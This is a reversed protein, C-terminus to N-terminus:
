SISRARTAAPAQSSQPARVDTPERELRLSLCTLGAEAKLFESIDLTAVAFGRSELAARTRPFGEALVVTKGIRLANAAWAEGPATPIVELGELASADIWAPNAVVADDAIPSCGTSLHLCGTVAIKKVRYGLPEALRALAEAGADNTRSSIGVYITRGLRFVDGGELTAGAPSRRLDRFEGLADATEAVEQRRSSERMSGLVAFEDLVVATDEIFACDPLDDRAPLTIVEAGLERLLRVYAAHQARARDIDIPRRDMHTLLCRGMAPSVARTIATLM